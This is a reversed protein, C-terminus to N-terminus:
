VFVLVWISPLLKLVCEMTEMYWLCLKHDAEEEVWVWHYWHFKRRPLSCARSGVWQQSRLWRCRHCHSFIGDWWELVSRVRRFLFSFRCRPDSRAVLPQLSIGLQRLLTHINTHTHTHWNDGKKGMGTRFIHISQTNKEARRRAYSGCNPHFREGM